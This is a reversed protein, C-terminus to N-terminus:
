VETNEVTDTLEWTLITNYEDTYKTTSGPVFLNVSSAANEEDETGWQVFQTGAGTNEKAAMVKVTKGPTLDLSADGVAVESESHTYFNANGLTIVAGTLEKDAKKTAKFQEEQKVTLTWGAETGRNDTIQVFNPVEQTPLEGEALETDSALQAKAKYDKDQSVIEQEGFDFSSAFDISLPGQGGPNPKGPKNPDWPFIPQGPKEPKEPPTVSGEGTNPKFTVKGTSTLTGGEAEAANASLAAGMTSSFLTVLTMAKITNKM